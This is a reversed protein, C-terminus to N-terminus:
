GATGHGKRSYAPATGSFGSRGGPAPLPWFGQRFGQPLFHKVLGRKKIIIPSLLSFRSSPFLYGGTSALPQRLQGRKRAHPAGCFSLQRNPALCRYPLPAFEERLLRWFRRTGKAPRRAGTSAAPHVRYRATILPRRKRPLSLPVASHEKPNM